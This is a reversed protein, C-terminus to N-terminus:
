SVYCLPRVEPAKKAQSSIIYVTSMAKASGTMSNFQTVKTLAKLSAQIRQMGAVTVKGDEEIEQETAFIQHNHGGKQPNYGLTADREDGFFVRDLAGEVWTGQTYNLGYEVFRPDDQGPSGEPLLQVDPRMFGDRILTSFMGAHWLILISWRMWKLRTVDTEDASAVKARHLDGAETRLWTDYGNEFGKATNFLDRFPSKEIAARFDEMVDRKHTGGTQGTLQRVKVTCKLVEACAPPLKSPRGKREPATDSGNQRVHRQVNALNMRRAPCVPWPGLPRAATVWNCAPYRKKTEALVGPWVAAAPAGYQAVLDGHEEPIDEKRPPPDGSAAEEAAAEERQREYEQAAFQVASGWSLQEMAVVSSKADNQGPHRRTAVKAWKDMLKRRLPDNESSEGEESRRRRSPHAAGAQFRTAKEAASLNAHARLVREGAADTPRQHTSIGQPAKAGQRPRKRPPERGGCHNERDKSDFPEAAARRKNDHAYRCRANYAYVFRQRQM